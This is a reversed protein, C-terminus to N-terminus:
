RRGDPTFALGRSNSIPIVFQIQQHTVSWIRVYSGESGTALWRGDPSLALGSVGGLGGPRSRMSAGSFREGGSALLALVEPSVAFLATMEAADDARGTADSRPLCIGPTGDNANWFRIRGDRGGSVLTHGDASFALCTVPKTHDRLVVAPDGLSRAWFHHWEFGRLDPQDEIPFHVALARRESLTVQDRERKLRAESDLRQAIFAIASFITMALLATLAPRRRMWKAAKEWPATQRAAIPEHRLWRQLDDALSLKQGSLLVLSISATFIGLGGLQILALLVAQDFGNFTEAVNVTTLGTVCTASTALFFYDLWGLSHGPRHAAPLMLLATGTAILALFGKPVLRLDVEKRRVVPQANFQRQALASKM